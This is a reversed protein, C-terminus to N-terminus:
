GTNSRYHGIVVNVPFRAGKSKKKSTGLDKIALVVHKHKEQRNVSCAMVVVLSAEEERDARHYVKNMEELDGSGNSCHFTGM